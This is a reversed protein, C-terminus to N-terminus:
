NNDKVCECPSVFHYPVEIFAATPHPRWIINGERGKATAPRFVPEDNDMEPVWRSGFCRQCEGITNQQPMLKRAYFRVEKLSPFENCSEQLSDRLMAGREDPFQQLVEDRRWTALVAKPSIKSTPFTGQLREVLLDILNEKM